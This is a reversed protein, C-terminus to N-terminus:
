CLIRSTPASTPELAAHALAVATTRKEEREDANSNGEHRHSRARLVLDGQQAARLLPAECVQRAHEYPLLDAGSDAPQVIAHQVRGALDKFAPRGHGPQAWSPAWGSARGRGPQGSCLRNSSRDASM